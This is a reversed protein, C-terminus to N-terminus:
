FFRNLQPTNECILRIDYQNLFSHLNFGLQSLTKEIEKQLKIDISDFNVIEPLLRM